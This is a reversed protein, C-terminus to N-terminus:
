AGAADITGDIQAAGVFRGCGQRVLRLTLARQRPIIITTLGSRPWTLGQHVATRM